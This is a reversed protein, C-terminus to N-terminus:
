RLDGATVGAPLLQPVYAIGAFARVRGGARVILDPQDIMLRSRSSGPSRPAHAYAGFYRGLLLNLDPKLPGQWSVAFVVGSATVFERIVTGTPAQLEHVNFAPRSALSPSTKLRAADASVSAELDGLAAHCPGALAAALLLWSFRRLTTRDTEHKM